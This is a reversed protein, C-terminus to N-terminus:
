ETEKGDVAIRGAFEAFKGEGIGKVNMIDEINEFPGNEERWAVIREALAEGIGPLGALEEASAANINLPSLDPLLEEAPVQRETEVAFPLQAAARDRQFLALLLCLFAATLALLLKETKTINGIARM